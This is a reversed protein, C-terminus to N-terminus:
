PAGGDVRMRLWRYKLYVECANAWAIRVGLQGDLFGARLFIARFLKWAARMWGEFLFPRHGSAMKEEAWLLAYRESRSRFDDWSRYTHHELLGELRGAKGGKLNVREHVAVEEMSWSDARFLRLNWDPSWEGHRIWRDEFRVIRNIEYGTASPDGEAFLERLEASLEPTLVEDADIWFIWKSSAASFLKRRTAGFGEWPVEEVRAGADRCMRISEDESGSDFVLVEEFLNLPPLARALRDAENKVLLCATVPLKDM